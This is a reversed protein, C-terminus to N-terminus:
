RALLGSAQGGRSQLYLGPVGYPVGGGPVYGQMTRGQEVAMRRNSREWWGPSAAEFLHFWLLYDLAGKLYVLNAFPVHRAAFSALDPWPDNKKGTRLSERWRGYLRGLNDADSAAPGFLAVLGSSGLRNVEGFVLDGFIGLGGGQALGALLTSPDRPDRLQHGRATDNIAMRTYGAITSLAVTLGLGWAADRSNLAMHVERGIVQNMAAMPWIKFQTLLRWTEFRPDGPRLSGYLMARERVGPTVVSHDAADHYYMLLKDALPQGGARLGDHPTIYQRGEWQPLDPLARLKDWDEAGIGYKGLMQQLHPDLEAFASDTQRGLNAALAERVGNRVSDYIYRIGTAKMFLNQLATIRGMLTNGSEFLLNWNRAVSFAYGGAYAGLDSLMAQREAPGRSGRVLMQAVRAVNGLGGFEGVGHHRLETPVTAWVSAFHTIGVGGLSVMNYYARASEGLSHWMANVPVNLSGDLRGMVNQLKPIADQFKKAGDLDSDRYKELIQRTIINLNAAPNTGMKDMLAINRSGQNITQQMGEYLTRYRGYKQNYDYWADADKWFLVRPESAKRAINRTGEYALPVFDGAADARLGDAGAPTMHIGSVLANFASRGFRLRAAEETEGPRLEVADFTKDALKPETWQWWRAFAEDEPISGRAGWGGRRMLLPDHWTHMVYDPADGIRAGHSNQLNRMEDLAPHYADAITKAPASVDVDAGANKAWMARAVERDLQGTAAVSAVGEKKLQWDVASNTAASRGLWESQVNERSGVNSGHMVDRLVQEADGFSTVRSLIAARKTANRVADLRDLRATERAKAAMESAAQLFPDEAGTLRMQEARDHVQQLLNLATDRGMRGAAAVRSVCAEFSQPVGPM